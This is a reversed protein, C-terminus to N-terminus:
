VRDLALPVICEVNMTIFGPRCTHKPYSFNIEIDVLSDATIFREFNREGRAISKHNITWLYLKAQPKTHTHFRTASM